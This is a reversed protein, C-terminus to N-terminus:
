NSAMNSGNVIMEDHFENLLKNAAENLREEVGELGTALIDMAAGVWITDGTKGDKFALVLKGVEYEEVGVVDRFPYPYYYYYDYGLYRDSRLEDDVVFSYEIVMDPKRTEALSYGRSNLNRNLATRIRRNNLDNEYLPDQPKEVVNVELAYTSFDSLRASRDSDSQVALRPSCASVAILFALIGTLRILNKMTVNKQDNM